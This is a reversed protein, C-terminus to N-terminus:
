HTVLAYSGASCMGATGVFQDRSVGDHEGETVYWDSVDTVGDVAIATSNIIRSMGVEVRTEDGSLSSAFVFSMSRCFLGTPPDCSVSDM